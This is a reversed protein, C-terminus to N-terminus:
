VLVLGPRLGLQERFPEPIDQWHEILLDVLQSGNILGIRPFGNELAVDMATAQFDATTIFAGQGGFPIAQRLQRVVNASIKSGLKYRKAQVFLKVKALNSANLEGTADVGGDGTKGTVESGDFGLATLLNAVLYEFEKPDLELVRNLVVEYPDYAKHALAPALNGHGTAALIEDAPSIGFVTLSSRLTNQLPVSLSSRALPKSAWAVSRRNPYPCAPDDPVYTYTNGPGVIGHWLLETNADPTIVLDGPAIELLFRGIQGVQIGIVTNSKDDPYAAKYLPYLADHSTVSSLDGLDSWGIGAYGGKLFQPTSKGGDARVCWAKTM